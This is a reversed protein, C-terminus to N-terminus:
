TDGLDIITYQLPATANQLGMAGSGAAARLKRTKTGSTLGSEIFCWSLTDTSGASGAHLNGRDIETNSGDTIKIQCSAGSVTNSVLARVVHMYLRGSVATFSLSGGTVDEESTISGQATTVEIRATWGGPLTNNATSSVPDSPSISGPLVARSTM